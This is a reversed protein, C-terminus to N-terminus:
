RVSLSYTVVVVAIQWKKCIVVCGLEATSYMEQQRFSM